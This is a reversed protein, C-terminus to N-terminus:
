MTRETNLVHYVRPKAMLQLTPNLGRKVSSQLATTRRHPGRVNVDGEFVYQQEIVPFCSPKNLTPTTTLGHTFDIETIGNFQGRGQLHYVAGDYQFQQHQQM